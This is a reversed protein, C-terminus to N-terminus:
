NKVPNKELAELKDTTLALISTLSKNSAERSSVNCFVKASFCCCSLPLPVKFAFDIFGTRSARSLLKIQM